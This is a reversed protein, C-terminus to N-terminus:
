DPVGRVDSKIQGEFCKKVIVAIQEFSLILDELSM